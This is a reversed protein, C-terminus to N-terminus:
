PMADHPLWYREELDDARVGFASLLEVGLEEAPLDLRARIHLPVGQDVGLGALARDAAADTRRLRRALARADLHVHANVVQVGAQVLRLLEAARAHQRGGVQRFAEAPDRDEGIRIAVLYSQPGSRGRRRRSPRPAGRARPVGGDRSGAGPRARRAPRRPSLPPM